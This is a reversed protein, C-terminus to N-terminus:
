CRTDTSLAKRATVCIHRSGARGFGRAVSRLFLAFRQSQFLRTVWRWGRVAKFWSEIQYWLRDYLYQVSVVQFPSARVQDIFGDFHEPRLYETLLAYGGPKMARYAEALADHREEFSLKWSHLGDSLVILDFPGETFPLATASAVVFRAGRGPGGAQRAKRIATRSLDVAVLRGPLSALQATLRGTSCGVDLTRQPEPNLRRATECIFRHRLIEAARRGYDFPEELRRHMEEFLGAQGPRRM